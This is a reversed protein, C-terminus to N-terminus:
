SGRALVKRRQIRGNACHDKTTQGSEHIIHRFTKIYQAGCVDFDYLHTHSRAIAAYKDYELMAMRIKEALKEPQFQEYCQFDEQNVEALLETNFFLLEAMAGSDFGVVPLGVSIAEIVSNPCPPNLHSYIFIHSDRLLQAVEHISKAGHHTIYPRDLYSELEHNPLPGVFHLEFKLRSKKLQDLAMVVPEVMDRNRFNGTTILKFLNPNHQQARETALFIRKNVGNVIINHSATKPEGFRGICQRHSYKSQFVIHDAYNHYIHEIAQNLERHQDGHKEPYYIGDLRQIIKGGRSKVQDLTDLCYSIPFFIHRAGNLHTIYSVNERDLYTKLNFLFTDVGGVRTKRPFRIFLKDTIIKRM